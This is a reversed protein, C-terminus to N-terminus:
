ATVEATREVWSALKRRLGPLDGSVSVFTEDAALNDIESEARHSRDRDESIFPQGDQNVRIIRLICGGLARVMEAEDPFRIGTIIATEPQRDQIAGYLARLWVGPQDDRKGIGVAQLMKPDRVTM